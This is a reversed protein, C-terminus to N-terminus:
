AASSSLRRQYFLECVEEHFVLRAFLKDVAPLGGDLYVAGLVAELCNATALTFTAESFPIDEAVLMYEGLHLQSALTSLHKNKM